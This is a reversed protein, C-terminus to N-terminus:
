SKYHHYLRQAGGKYYDEYEKKLELKHKLNFEKELVGHLRDLCDWALSGDQHTRELMGKILMDLEASPAQMRARDDASLYTEGKNGVMAAPVLKSTLEERKKAYLAFIAVTSKHLDDLAAMENFLKNDLSLVLAMEEPSFKISDPLPAMPLVVPWLWGNHSRAKADQVAQRVPIGLQPFDSCIRIMKFLLEYGLAKRVERRDDDHLKKTATLSKKQLWYSVAGGLVSGIITGGFASVVAWWTVAESGASTAM